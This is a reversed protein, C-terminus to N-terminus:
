GLGFVNDNILPCRSVDPIRIRQDALLKQGLCTSRQGANDLCRQGFRDKLSNLELSDPKM